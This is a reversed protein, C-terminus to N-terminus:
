ERLFFDTMHGFLTTM